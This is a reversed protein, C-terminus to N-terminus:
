ADKPAQPRKHQLRHVEQRVALQLYENPSADLFQEMTIMQKRLLFVCLKLTSSNDYRPNIRFVPLPDCNGIRDLIYELASLLISIEDDNIPWRSLLVLDWLKM